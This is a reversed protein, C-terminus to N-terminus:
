IIEKMLKSIRRNEEPSLHKKVVNYYNKASRYMKARFLIELTLTNIESDLEEINAANAVIRLLERTKGTERLLLIHNKLLDNFLVRYYNIKASLWIEADFNPMFSGKYMELAKKGAALRQAQPLNDNLAKQALKEFEEADVWVSLERNISYTGGGATIVPVPCISDFMKRTRFALNKILSYPDDIVSDPWIIEALEYIPVVRHRNCLLYIFFTWCQVSSLNDEHQIGLGTCITLGGLLYVMLQNEPARSLARSLNAASIASGRMRETHLEGAALIAINRLVSLNEPRDAFRHFGDLCVFCRMGSRVPFPVMVYNWAEMGKYLQEKLEDKQESKVYSEGHLPLQREWADLMTRVGFEDTKRINAIEDSFGTRSESYIDVVCELDPDVEFIFSRDAAYVFMAARLLMSVTESVDGLASTWLQQRSALEYKNLCDVHNGYGRPCISDVRLSEGGERIIVSDLVVEGMDDLEVNMFDFAHTDYDIETYSQAAAGRLGFLEPVKEADGFRERAMTNMGLVQGDRVNSVVVPQQSSLLESLIGQRLDM